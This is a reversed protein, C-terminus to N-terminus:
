QALLGGDVVFDQGTVYSSAESMLWIGIGAFDNPLGWRRLPISKKIADYRAGKGTEGPQPTTAFETMPTDIWGPILTNVRIRYRALEVALTKTLSRLAGKTAAYVANQPMARVAAGSSIFIMSGGTKKMSNATWQAIKLQAGLNLELIDRMKDPDYDLFPQLHVAAASFVAGNLTLNKEILMAQLSTCFDDDTASKAFSHASIKQKKLWAVASKLKGESRSVLVIQAGAMGMGAALGLGIGTSGGVVLITQDRLSFLENVPKALYSNFDDLVAEM